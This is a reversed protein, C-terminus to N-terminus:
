RPPEPEDDGKRVLVDVVWRKKGNVKVTKVRVARTESPLEVTPLPEPTPPDVVEVPTVEDTAVIEVATGAGNGNHLDPSSEHASAPVVVEPVIVERAPERADDIPAPPWPSEFLTEQADDNDIRARKAQRRRRRPRPPDPRPDPEFVLDLTPAVVADAVSGATPPEAAAPEAPRALLAMLADVSADVRAVADEVPPEPQEPATDVPPQEIVPDEVPTMEVSGPLLAMLAQVAADVRAIPEEVVREERDADADVALPTAAAVVDTAEQAIPEPAGESGPILALLAAVSADVRATLEDGDPDVRTEVDAADAAREAEVLPDAAALRAETFPTAEPIEAVAEAELARKLADAKVEVRLTVPADDLRQETTTQRRRLLRLRTPETTIGDVIDGAETM